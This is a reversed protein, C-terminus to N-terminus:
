NAPDQPNLGARECIAEYAWQDWEPRVGIGPLDLYNKCILGGEFIDYMERAGAEILARNGTPLIKQIDVPSCLAARRERLTAALKPMDYLTPQDFQFVDVMRVWLNGWEDDYYERPGDTWRRQQYGHATLGCWELDDIRGGDFTMGCRPPNTHAINALIIERSNM